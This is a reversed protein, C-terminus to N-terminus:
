EKTRVHKQYRSLSPLISCSLHLDELRIAQNSQYLEGNSKDIFSSLKEFTVVTKCCTVKLPRYKCISSKISFCIQSDGYLHCTQLDAVVPLSGVLDVVPASDTDQFPNGKVFKSSEV